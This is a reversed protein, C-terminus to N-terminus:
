ERQTPILVKKIAAAALFIMVRNACVLRCSGIKGIILWARAVSARVLALIM